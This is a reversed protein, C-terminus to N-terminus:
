QAAGAPPPEASALGLRLRCVGAHGAAATCFDALREPDDAFAVGLDRGGAGSPKYAVAHEGALRALDRHVASVIDIGAAEGLARLALGYDAAAGCFDASRGAALADGGSQALAALAQRHQAFAAPRRSRWASLRQLFGGTSTSGGTYLAAWHLDPPLALPVVTPAGAGPARAFRLLGGCLAAAIDV